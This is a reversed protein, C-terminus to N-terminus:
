FLKKYNDIQAQYTNEAVSSKKSYRSKSHSRYSYNDSLLTNNMAKKKEYFTEEERLQNINEAKPPPLFKVGQTRQEKYNTSFYRSSENFNRELAEIHPTRWDKKDSYSTSNFNGKKKFMLNAEQKLAMDLAISNIEQRLSDKIM